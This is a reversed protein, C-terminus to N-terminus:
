NFHCFSGGRSSAKDRPSCAPPGRAQLSTHITAILPATSNCSPTLDSTASQVLTICFSPLADPIGDDDTSDTLDEANALFNAFWAEGHINQRDSVSMPTAEDNKPIVCDRVYATRPSTRTMRDSTCFICDPSAVPSTVACLHTVGTAGGGLGAALVVTLIAARGNM